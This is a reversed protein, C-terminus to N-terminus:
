DQDDEEIEKEIWKKVAAYKQEDTANDFMEHLFVNFTYDEDDEDVYNMEYSSYVREWSTLEVDDVSSSITVKVESLEPGCPVIHSCEPTGDEHMIGSPGILPSRVQEGNAFLKEIKSTM